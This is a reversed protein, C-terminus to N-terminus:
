DRLRDRADQIAQAHDTRFPTSLTKELKCCLNWPVRQEAQDVTRLEDTDSFRSLFEFPVLAEDASLELGVATSKM